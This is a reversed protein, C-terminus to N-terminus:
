RAIGAMQSTQVMRKGLLRDGKLLVNSGRTRSILARRMSFAGRCMNDKVWCEDLLNQRDVHFFDLPIMKHARAHIGIILFIPSCSNYSALQGDRRAKSHWPLKSCITDFRRAIIVMGDEGVNKTCCPYTRASTEISTSRRESLQQFCVALTGYLTGHHSIADRCLRHHM